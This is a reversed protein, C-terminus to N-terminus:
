ERERRKEEKDNKERRRERERERKRQGGRLRACGINWICGNKRTKRCEFHRECKTDTTDTNRIQPSNRLYDPLVPSSFLSYAQFLLIEAYNLPPRFENNDYYFYNELYIWIGFLIDFRFWDPRFVFRVRVAGSVSMFFVWVRVLCSGLVFGSFLWFRFPCSGLWSGLCSGSAFGSM